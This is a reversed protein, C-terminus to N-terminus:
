RRLHSRGRGHQSLGMSLVRQRKRAQRGDIARLDGVGVREAREQEALVGPVLQADGESWGIRHVVGRCRGRDEERHILGCGRDGPGCGSRDGIPCREAARLQIRGSRNGPAEHIAWSRACHRLGSRARGHGRTRAM